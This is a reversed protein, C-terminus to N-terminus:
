GKARGRQPALAVLDWGNEKEGWYQGKKTMYATLGKLTGSTGIAELPWCGPGRFSVIRFRYLGNRTKWVEGIKPRSPSNAVRKAPAKRSAKVKGKKVPM